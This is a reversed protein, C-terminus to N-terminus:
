AVALCHHIPSSLPSKPATGTVMAASYKMGSAIARSAIAAAVRAREADFEARPGLGVVLVRETAGPRLLATRKYAPRAEGALDVTIRQLGDRSEIVATVVGTRFSPM